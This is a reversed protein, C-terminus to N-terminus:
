QCVTIALAAQLKACNIVQNNMICEYSACSPITPTGVYLLTLPDVKVNVVFLCNLGYQSATLTSTSSSSSSSTTASSTSTAASNPGSADLGPGSVNMNMDLALQVVNNPLITLVNSSFSGASISYISDNCSVQPPIPPATYGASPAPTPQALIALNAKNVMATTFQALAVEPPPGCASMSVLVIWGSWRILRISNFRHNLPPRPTM